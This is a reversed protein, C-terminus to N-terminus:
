EDPNTKPNVLLEKEKKELPATEEQYLKLYRKCDEPLDKLIDPVASDNKNQSYVKREPLYDHNLNM